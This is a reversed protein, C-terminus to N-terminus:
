TIKNEYEMKKVFDTIFPRVHIYRRKIGAVECFQKANKCATELDEALFNYVNIYNGEKVNLVFINEPSPKKVTPTVITESM